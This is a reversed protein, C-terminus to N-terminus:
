GGYQKTLKGDKTHTGLKVLYARAAEPSKTVKEVTRKSAERTERADRANFVRSGNDNKSM